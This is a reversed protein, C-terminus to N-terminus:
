KSNATCFMNIDFDKKEILFFENTKRIPIQDEKANLRVHYKTEIPVYQNGEELHYSSM